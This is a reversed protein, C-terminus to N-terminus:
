DNRAAIDRQQEATVFGHGGFLNGFREVTRSLPSGVDNLSEQTDFVNKSEEYTRGTVYGWTAMPGVPNFSLAATATAGAGGTGRSIGAVAPVLGSMGGSSAALSGLSQVVKGLGAGALLGLAGTLMETADERGGAFQLFDVAVAAGGSSGGAGLSTDWPNRAPPGTQTETYSPLGFEPTSTKGLSIGGAADLTAPLEDTQESVHNAMLRSGYRTPVGARQWLDKDAFPLGWLAASRAPAASLSHARERAADATVTVFAGLGSDLREIRALYHDTLDAPTIDGRHLWDRQEQATLHHLEFV